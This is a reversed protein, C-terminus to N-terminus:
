VDVTAGNLDSTAEALRVFVDTISAPERVSKPDEGPFAQARLKTRTPAPRVLNARVATTRGIEEAYSRVVSELAAKSAAYAGWYARGDAVEDTVFVARGAASERLLPDFVRLLRWNAVVNLAFVKEWVAAPVHGLPSLVGLEGAIGCLIDLRHWREWVAVAMREIVEAATLDVPVLSAQRGMRRIADDVEELAGQTRGVLILDAGEEAFRLAVARGIGHSAGTVLALRGVLRGSAGSPAASM